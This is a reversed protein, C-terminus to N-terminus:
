EQRIEPCPSSGHVDPVCYDGLANARRRGESSERVKVSRNVTPAQAPISHWGDPKQLYIIETGDPVPLLAHGTIPASVVIIQLSKKGTGCRILQTVRYEGSVGSSRLAQLVHATLASVEADGHIMHPGVVSIVVSPPAVPVGPTAPLVIAVTLERNQHIANFLLAPMVALLCLAAATILIPLTRRTLTVLMAAAGAAIWCLAEQLMFDQLLYEWHINWHWKWEVQAIKMWLIGVWIESSYWCLCGIAAGAAAALLATRWGPFQTRPFAAAVIGVAVAFPLSFRLAVMAVWMHAGQLMGAAYLVGLMIATLVLATLCALGFRLLRSAPKVSSEVPREQELESEM